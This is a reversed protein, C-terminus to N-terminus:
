KIVRENGSVFSPDGLLSTTIPSRKSGVVTDTFVDKGTLMVEKMLQPVSGVQAISPALSIVFAVDRNNSGSGTNSEVTGINWIVERTTENYSLDETYGEGLGVFKVYVPLVARAVAGTVNNASNSLTWTVAYKTETDARPPMSGSLYTASSAIQFIRTKVFM